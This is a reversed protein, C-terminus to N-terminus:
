LSDDNIKKNNKKTFALILIKRLTLIRETSGVPKSPLKQTELKHKENLIYFEIVRNM